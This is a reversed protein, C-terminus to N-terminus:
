FKRLNHFPSSVDEPSAITFIVQLIQDGMRYKFGLFKFRGFELDNILYLANEM